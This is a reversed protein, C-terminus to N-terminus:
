MVDEKDVLYRTSWTVLTDSPAPPPPTAYDDLFESCANEKPFMFETNKKHVKTVKVTQQGDECLEMLLNRCMGDEHHTPPPAGGVIGEDVPRLRNGPHLM